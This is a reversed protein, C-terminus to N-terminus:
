ALKFLTVVVRVVVPVALQYRTDRKAIHPWLLETLNLVAAKSTRFAEVWREDEYQEMLFHTFWITSCPKVWYEIDENFFYFLHCLRYTQLTITTITAMDLV